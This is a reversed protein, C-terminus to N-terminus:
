SQLHHPRFPLRIAKFRYAASVPVVTMKRNLPPQFIQLGHKDLADKFVQHGTRDLAALAALVSTLLAVFAAVAAPELDKTPLCYATLRTTSAFGSRSRRLFAAAFGGEKNSIRRLDCDLGRGM